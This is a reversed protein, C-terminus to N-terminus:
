HKSKGQKGGKGKGFGTQGKKPTDKNNGKTENDLFGGVHLASRASECFDKFRDPGLLIGGFWRSVVIAINEVKLKQLLYLLTSGAGDEGDDDYSELQPIRFALVNHTARAINKDTKLDEVFQNVEDHTVVRTAFGIFKSTHKPTSQDLKPISEAVEFNDKVWQFWELLMSDHTEEYIENLRVEISNLNDQSYGKLLSTSDNIRFKAWVIETDHDIMKETTFGEDGFISSLLEFEEEQKESDSKDDM